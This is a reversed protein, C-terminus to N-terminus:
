NTLIEQKLIDFHANKPKKAQMDVSCQLNHLTKTMQVISDTLCNM